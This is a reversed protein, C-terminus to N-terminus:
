TKIIFNVVLFPPNNAGTAGTGGSDTNGTLPITARSAVNAAISTELLLDFSMSPGSPTKIRFGTGSAFLGAGGNNSLPHTHSPGTHTHDINGGTSGLTDGTGSDAKGLPFKQRLDPLNFNGGGPDGEFTFGIVAFLDAYTTKSVAAGNCLLWGIPASTGGYMIIGGSIGSIGANDFIATGLEDAFDQEGTIPDTHAATRVNAIATRIRTRLNAVTM